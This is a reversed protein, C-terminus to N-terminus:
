KVEVGGFVASGHIRLVKDAEGTAFPRRDSVGGLVATIDNQVRWNGPVIIEVGGFVSNVELSVVGHLDAQSLDVKAGGFFCNVEGGEFHSSVVRKRAGGFMANVSLRDPTSEDVGLHVGGRAHLHANRRRWPQLLMMLGAVIIALPWIIHRIHLDPNADEILLLTGLALLIPGGPKQVGNKGILYLGVLILISHLGFFWEPMQVGALWVSGAFVLLLGGVIRGRNNRKEFERYARHTTGFSSEMTTIKTCLYTIVPGGCMDPTM